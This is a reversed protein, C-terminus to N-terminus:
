PLTQCHSFAFPAIQSSTPRSFTHQRIRVKLPTESDRTASRRSSVNKIFCKFDAERLSSHTFAVSKSLANTVQQTVDPPRTQPISGSKEWEPLVTESLHKFVGSARCLLTVAFNLKEDKTKREADSIAREVEYNGLSAVTSRALNSLVFAYTLLTFALDAHLSPVSRRPSSDFVNTSLTSRWSFASLSTLRSTGPILADARVLNQRCCSKRRTLALKSAM